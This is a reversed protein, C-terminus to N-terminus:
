LELGDEEMMLLVATMVLRYIVILFISFYLALKIMRYKKEGNLVSFIETVDVLHKKKMYLRAHYYTIPAMVVFPFWHGSLLFFACLVGQAAFEPVVIANIRSSSDYPNIYDCELDSLSILQYATMAILAIVTVFAYLWLILVWVM